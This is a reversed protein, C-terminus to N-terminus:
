KHKKKCRKRRQKPEKAKFRIISNPFLKPLERALEPCNTEARAGAALMDYLEDYGNDIYEDLIATSERIFLSM